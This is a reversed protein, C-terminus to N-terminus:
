QQLEQSVSTLKGGQKNYLELVSPPGPVEM